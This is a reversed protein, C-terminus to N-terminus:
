RPLVSIFEFHFEPESMSGRETLSFESPFRANRSSSFSGSFVVKQGVSLEAVREWLPTGTKIDDFLGYTGLAIGEDLAIAINANGASDTSLSKFNGVWGRVKLDDPLIEKLERSRDTVYNFRKIDNAATKYAVRYKRIIDIFATERRRQDALDATRKQEAAKAREVERVRAAEETERKERLGDSTKQAQAQSDGTRETATESPATELLAGGAIFLVLGALTVAAGGKRSKIKLITIPKIISIFGILFVVLGILVLAAGM